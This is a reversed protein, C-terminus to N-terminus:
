GKLPYTIGKSVSPIDDAAEHGLITETNFQAPVVEKGKAQKSIRVRYMGLYIGPFKADPGKLSARGEVNTVGSCNSFSAGLFSEPEFTVTAGALPCGAVNVEVGGNVITTAATKYYDIREAMEAASIAGDQDKDIRSFAETLGPSDASESEDIMGDGNADYSTLAQQAAETPDLTPRSPAAPHRSCGQFFALSILLALARELSIEMMKITSGRSKPIPLRAFAETTSLPRSNIPVAMTARASDMTSGNM